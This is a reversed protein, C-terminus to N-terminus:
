RPSQIYGHKSTAKDMKRVGLFSIMSAYLKMGLSVMKM